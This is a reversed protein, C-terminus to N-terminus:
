GSRSELRGLWEDFHPCERRFCSLGIELAALSGLLPKEYGPMLDRVRKSPATLPSDNIDKTNSVPRSNNQVGEGLGTTWYRSQFRRM